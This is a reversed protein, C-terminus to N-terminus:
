EDTEGGEDEAVEEIDGPVRDDLEPVDAAPDLQEDFIVLAYDEWRRIPEVLSEYGDAAIAHVYLANRDEDYDMTLTGPTLTISNAITTIAIDSQVRLPVEVVVPDIPMSPALVRKAVDVNATLLEWLFVGVYALLAPVVHITRRIGYTPRYFRRFAYATPMGVVLGLIFEGLALFPEDVVHIGRVLIWLVALGLGITPWKRVGESAEGRSVDEFASEDTAGNSEVTEMDSM